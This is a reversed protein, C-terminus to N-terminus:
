TLFGAILGDVTDGALLNRVWFYEGALDSPRNFFAQYAGEV